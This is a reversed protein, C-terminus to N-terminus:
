SADGEIPLPSTTRDSMEGILDHLQTRLAALAVPSLGTQCAVTRQVQAAALELSAGAETLCVLVVRRDEADRQRTVLGAAQLRDVIPTIAHGPLALRAAVDSISQDGRQWLVMLTLYQPYTIGIQRLLPRYARTIVNTAAYLAFCLQDDVRLQNSQTM